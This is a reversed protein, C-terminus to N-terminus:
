LIWLAMAISVLFGAKVELPAAASSSSSSSGGSTGSAGNGSTTSGSPINSEDNSLVKLKLNKVEQGNSGYVAVGVDTKDVSIIKGTVGGSVGKSIMDAVGPPVAPLTFNNNFGADKILKSSCAPAKLSTATTNTAQIAKIDLKNFQGQLTDYDKLLSVTKNGNIKVLGYDNDEQTWEYVVGGSMVNRM